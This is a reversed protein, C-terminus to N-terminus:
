LEESEDTAAKESRIAEQQEHYKAMRYGTVALATAVGGMFVNGVPAELPNMVNIHTLEVYANGIGHMVRGFSDPYARNLTRIGEAPGVWTAGILAGLKAIRGTSPPNGDMTEGMVVGNTGVANVAGTDIIQKGVFAVSGSGHEDLYEGGKKVQDGVWGIAIYPSNLVTSAIARPRSMNERKEEVYADADSLLERSKSWRAILSGTLLVEGEIAALIGLDEIAKKEVPNEISFKDIETDIGNYIKAMAADSAGLEYAPLVCVAAVGLTGLTKSIKRRASEFRSEKRHKGGDEYTNSM